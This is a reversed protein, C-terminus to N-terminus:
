TGLNYMDIILDNHCVCMHIGISGRNNTISVKLKACM